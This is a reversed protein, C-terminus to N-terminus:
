RLPSVSNLSTIKRIKDPGPSTSNRIKNIRLKVKKPTFPPLSEIISNVVNKRVSWEDLPTRGVTTRGQTHDWFRLVLSALVRL